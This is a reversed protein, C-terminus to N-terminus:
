AGNSVRHSKLDLSFSDAVKTLDLKASDLPHYGSIGAGSLCPQFVGKIASASVTLRLYGFHTDVYNVLTRPPDDRKLGKAVPSPMKQGFKYEGVPYLDYYGGCGAVIYPVEAGSPMTRTFRQYNHVHGTLVLDPPRGTGVAEDILQLLSANSGHEGDESFIPNHLSIILAKNAPAAALTKALWARQTADVFGASPCNTYLNVFTAFPADLRFYVYPQTMATRFSDKSEPTKVPEKACFNRVFAALSDPSAKGDPMDGDHNGPIAFIPANYHRYPYYFQEHYYETQGDFYVVDGLHFFFAPRDTDPLALDQEMRNAVSLQAQPNHVGGTDGVTHFVLQGAAEIRKIEDADLVDALDLALPGSPRPSPLPQNPQNRSTEGSVETNLAIDASPRPDGFVRGATGTVSDLMQAAKESLPKGAAKPSPQGTKSAPSSATKKNKSM